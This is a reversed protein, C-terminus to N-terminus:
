TGGGGIWVNHLHHWCDAEYVNIEDETMGNEKAEAEIAKLLLKRFNQARNCTDTMLWYHKALRALTLNIIDSLQELM